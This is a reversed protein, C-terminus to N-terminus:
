VIPDFFFSHVSTEFLKVHLVIYEAISPVCDISEAFYIFVAKGTKNILSFFRNKINEQFETADSALGRILEGRM